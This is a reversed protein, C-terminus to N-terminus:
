SRKVGYCGGRVPQGMGRKARTRAVAEAVAGRNGDAWGVHQVLREIRWADPTRLM